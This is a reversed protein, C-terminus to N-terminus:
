NNHNFKHLGPDSLYAFYISIIQNGFEFKIFSNVKFFTFESKLSENLREYENSSILYNKIDFKEIAFNNQYFEKSDKTTSIQPNM